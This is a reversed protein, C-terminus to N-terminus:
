TSAISTAGTGVKAKAEMKKRLEDTKGPMITVEMGEDEEEEDEEGADACCWRYTEWSILVRGRLRDFPGVIGSCTGGLLGGLLMARKRRAEEEKKGKGKKGQEGQGEGESEEEEDEEGESSSALYVALDDDDMEAWKHYSTLKAEREEDGADWTCEVKSHQLAKTVFATPEARCVAGM